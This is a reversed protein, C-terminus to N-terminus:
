SIIFLLFICFHYIIIFSSVFLCVFLYVFLYTFLHIFHALMAFHFTECHYPAQSVRYKSVYYLGISCEIATARTSAVDYTLAICYIRKYGLTQFTGDYDFYTQTGDSLSNSSGFDNDKVGNVYGCVCYMAIGTAQM